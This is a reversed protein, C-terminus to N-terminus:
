DERRYRVMKGRRREQNASRGCRRARLERKQRRVEDRLERAGEGLMTGLRM